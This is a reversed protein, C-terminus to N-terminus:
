LIVALKSSEHDYNLNAIRMFVRFLVLRVRDKTDICAEADLLLRMSDIDANEASFSLASKENQFYLAHVHQDVPM